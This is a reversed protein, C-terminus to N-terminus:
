NLWGQHLIIIILSFFHKTKCWLKISSNKFMVMEGEGGWFWIIVIRRFSPKLKTNMDCLYCGHPPLMKLEKLVIDANLFWLLPSVIQVEVAACKEKVILDKDHYYERHAYTHAKWSDQLLYMWRNDPKTLKLSHPLMNM